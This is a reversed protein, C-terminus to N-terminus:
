CSAVLPGYGLREVMARPVSGTCATWGEDTDHMDPDWVLLLRSPETELWM